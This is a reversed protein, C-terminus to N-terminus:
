MIVKINRVHVRNIEIIIMLIIVLTLIKMAVLVLKSSFNSCSRTKMTVQTNNNNNNAITTTTRILQAIMLRLALIIRKQQILTPTPTIITIIASLWKKNCTLVCTCRVHM